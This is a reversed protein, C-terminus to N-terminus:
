TMFNNRITSSNGSSVSSAIDNFIINNNIKDLLTMQEEEANNMLKKESGINHLKIISSKKSELFHYINYKIDGILFHFLKVLKELGLFKENKFKKIFIKNKNICYNRKMYNKLREKNGFFLLIENNKEKETVIIDNDIYYIGNLYIKDSIHNLTILRLKLKLLKCFIRKGEREEILFNFNINQKEKELGKLNKQPKKKNKKLKTNEMCDNLNLLHKKMEFIQENKFLNM